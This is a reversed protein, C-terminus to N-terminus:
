RPPSRPCIVAVKVVSELEKRDRDHYCAHQRAVILTKIKRRVKNCKMCGLVYTENCEFKEHM